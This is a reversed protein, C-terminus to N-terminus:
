PASSPFRARLFAGVRAHLLPQYAACDFGAPDQAPPFDPRALQKPFPSMFAFHGANRVTERVVLAREGIGNVIVDGHFGPVFPDREAELMLIPASVKALSNEEAFWAAAPALLVLARVRADHVVSVARRKRDATEHEFATPEGGALALATYGGMSHGVVAFGDKSIHEGLEADAFAAAVALQLQRPRNELNASTGELANDSRSNGLHEFLAVVYGRRV